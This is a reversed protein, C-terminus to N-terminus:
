DNILHDALPIKPVYLASRYADLNAIILSHTHKPLLSKPSSLLSSSSSSSALM